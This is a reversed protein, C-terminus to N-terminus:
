GNDKEKRRITLYLETIRELPDDDVYGDTQDSIAEARDLYWAAKDLDEAPHGKHKYRWLYKFANFLCAAYTYEDGILAQIVDICELSCSNAYHRPHNVADIVEAGNSPHNVADGEAHPHNASDDEGHPHNVEAGNSETQSPHNVADDHRRSENASRRLEQNLANWREMFQGTAQRTEPPNGDIDIWREAHDMNKASGIQTPNVLYLGCPPVTGRRDLLELDPYDDLFFLFTELEDDDNIWIGGGDKMWEFYLYDCMDDYASYTKYTMAEFCERDVVHPINFVVTIGCPAKATFGDAIKTNNEILENLVYELEENTECWIKFAM